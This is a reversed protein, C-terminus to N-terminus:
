RVRTVKAARGSRQVSFKRGYKNGAACAMNRVTVIDNSMIFWDGIKMSRWPYKAKAGKRQGGIFVLRSLDIQKGM